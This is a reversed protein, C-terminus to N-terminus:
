RNILFRNIICIGTFTKNGYCCFRIIIQLFLRATLDPELAATIIQIFIIIIILANQGILNLYEGTRYYIRFSSLYVLGQLTFARLLCVTVFRIQFIKFFGKEIGQRVM